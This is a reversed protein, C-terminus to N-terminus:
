SMWLVWFNYAKLMRISALQISLMMNISWVLWLYSTHQCNPYSVYAGSSLLLNLPM